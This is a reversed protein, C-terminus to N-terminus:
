RRCRCLGLLRLLRQGGTRQDRRSADAGTAPREPGGLDCHGTSPDGGVRRARHRLDSPQLGAGGGGAQRVERGDRLAAAGPPRVVRPLGEPNDTGAAGAGREAAPVRRHHGSIGSSTAAVCGATRTVPARYDVQRGGGVGRHLEGTHLVYSSLLKTLPLYVERVDLLSTPDDLGRLRDLTAADLAMPTSAALEAWDSRSREVYPGLVQGDRRM